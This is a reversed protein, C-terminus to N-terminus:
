RLILYALTGLVGVAAVASFSLGAVLVLTAAKERLQLGAAAAEREDDEQLRPHATKTLFMIALVLLAFLVAPSFMMVTRVIEDFPIRAMLGAFIDPKFHYTILAMMAMGFAVVAFILTFFVSADTFRQLDTKRRVSAQEGRPASLFLYTLLIFAIIFLAPPMLPILRHIYSTGPLPELLRELRAPSVFGLAWLASSLLLGPIVPVLTTWAAIRGRPIPRPMEEVKEAPTSEKPKDVAYLFALVVIAFLTAPAFVLATRLFSEGPLRALLSGFKAPSLYFMALAAVSALLMPVTPILVLSAFWNSRRSGDGPDPNQRSAQTSQATM